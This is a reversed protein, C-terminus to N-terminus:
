KCSKKLYRSRDFGYFTEKQSIVFENNPYEAAIKNYEQIGKKKGNLLMLFTAKSIKVSMKLSDPGNKLVANCKAIDRLYRKKAKEKQGMRELINGGWSLIGIFDPQIKALRDLTKLAEKREGLHCLLSAKNWHAPRYLSDSAIAQDLLELVHKETEKDKYAEAFLKTAESNLEVAKQREPTQAWSCVSIVFLCIVTWKM